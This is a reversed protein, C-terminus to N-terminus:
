EQEDNHKKSRLPEGFSREVDFKVSANKRGDETYTWDMRRGMSAAHSFKVDGSARILEDRMEEIKRMSAADPKRGYFDDFIALYIRVIQDKNLGPCTNAEIVWVKGASDLGFDLGMVELGLKECAVPMIKEISAWANDDLDSDKMEVWKYSSRGDLTGERDFVDQSPFLNASEHLKKVSENLKPMNFIFVEMEECGNGSRTDCMSIGDIIGDEYLKYAADIDQSEDGAMIRWGAMSITIIAPETLSANKKDKFMNTYTKPSPAENRSSFVKSAWNAHEKAENIDSTFSVGLKSGVGSKSDALNLDFGRKLIERKAGETTGHYIEDLQIFQINHLSERLSKAKKNTPIREAIYVLKGCVTIVRFERKLDFKESFVDLETEESEPKFADLEEKTKFVTVGEGKSGGKPKAIIPFKLNSVDEKAFVTKPVFDLGDMAKHFEIKDNAYKLNDPHNYINQKKFAGCKILGYIEDHNGYNYMPLEPNIVGSFIGPAMVLDFLNEAVRRVLHDIHSFSFRDSHPMLYIKRLDSKNFDSYNLVRKM